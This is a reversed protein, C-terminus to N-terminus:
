FLHYVMYSFLFPPIIIFGQDAGFLRVICFSLFHLSLLLEGRNSKYWICIKYLEYSRKYQEVMDKWDARGITYQM